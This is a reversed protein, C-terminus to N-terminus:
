EGICMHDDIWKGVLIVIAFFVIWLGAFVRLVHPTFFSLLFSVTAAPIVSILVALLASITRIRVIRWNIM